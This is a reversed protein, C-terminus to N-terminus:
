VQLFDSLFQGALTCAPKEIKNSRKLFPSVPISKTNGDKTM